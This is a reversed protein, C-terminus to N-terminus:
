MLIEEEFVSGLSGDYLEDVFSFGAWNIRNEGRPSEIFDIDFDDLWNCDDSPM